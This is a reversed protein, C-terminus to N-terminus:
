RKKGDKYTLKSLKKRRTIVFVGVFVILLLSGILNGYRVFMIQKANEFVLPHPMMQKVKISALSDEQALYSVIDMGFAINEESGISDSVFDSDGIVVIRTMKNGGEEADKSKLLVALTKQGLDNTNFKQKPDIDFVKSQLGAFKTTYVLPISEFGKESLIEENVSVSSGWPITVNAINSGAMLSNNVVAQVFLPYPVFYRIMGGGVQITQNSRLDYVLDQNVGVGYKELVDVSSTGNAIASMYNANVNVGDIMLLLNKGKSVADDVLKAKTEDFMSTPGAVVVVSVDDSITSTAETPMFNEVTFQKSLESSLKSFAQTGSTVFAIKKKDTSTLENIFSTLKYELDSTDQIVSITKTDDGKKVVMGFYSQKVQLEGDGVVNFQVPVVGSKQAEKAVDDDNGPNKYEVKLKSNGYASYDHLVDKVTALIPQYQAPLNGSAYLTIVVDDNLDSLINKTADTLTYINGDTLDLRAVPVFGLGSTVVLLVALSLIVFKERVAIKAKKGFRRLILNL